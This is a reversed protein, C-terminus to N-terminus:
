VPGQNTRKGTKLKDMAILNAINAKPADQLDRHCKCSASVM